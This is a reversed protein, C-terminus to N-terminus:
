DYQAKIKPHIAKQIERSVLSAGLPFASACRRTPPFMVRFLDVLLAFFGRNLFRRYASDGGALTPSGPM